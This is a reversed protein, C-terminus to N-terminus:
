HKRFHRETGRDPLTDPDANAGADSGSYERRLSVLALFFGCVIFLMSGLKFFYNGLFNMAHNFFTDIVLLVLLNLGLVIMIHSATSVAIGLLKSSKNKKKM